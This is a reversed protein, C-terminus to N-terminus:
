KLLKDLKDKTFIHEYLSGLFSRVIALSRYDFALPAYKALHEQYSAIVSLIHNDCEFVYSLM